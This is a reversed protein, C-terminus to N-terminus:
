KAGGAHRSRAIGMGTICITLWVAGAAFGGVVDSFYHVGLYIRSIGILLILLITAIILVTRASQHRIGLLAFYALLGYAIVSFMAHGSPFSYNAATQIPDAFEPRPRAFIHKLIQNLLEGGGWGIIWVVLHLWQRRIALFVAVVIVIGWLVQFGLLSIFSFIPTASPTVWSHVANALNKDFQELGSGNLINAALAGFLVLGLTLALLGVILHVALYQEASFRKTLQNM